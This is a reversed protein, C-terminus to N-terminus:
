ASADLHQSVFPIGEDPGTEQKRSAPSAQFSRAALADQAAKRVSEDLKQNLSIRALAEAAPAQPMAAVVKVVRVMAWIGPPAPANFYEELISLVEPDPQFMLEGLADELLTPSLLPLVKAIATKRKPLRSEKIAQFAAKQVREDKNAFVPTLQDLLEPDKLDGLLKCANRVIYWEPHHLRQRAALLGGPGVRGLLRILALRNAALPEIDLRLFMRELTNSDTWRLLGTVARIWASDNKRELFIEVIRDAASPQLLLRLAGRCCLAHAQADRAASAELADGVKRVLAFDEYTAAIRALAVLANVVQVHILQNLRRSTLAHSLRDEAMIWFEGQVGSLSRLLEPIRGVEENRVTLHDEFISFYQSGLAGAQDVNGLRILEKILDLARRFESASFHDVSLMERLKGQPTLTLWRVEQQLREFTHKPLAFERAYEALKQALRSAAHTAQLSRMLVRFIQEEVIVADEGDPTAALRRLAWRLATDEFVQATVEEKPAGDGTGGTAGTLNALVADPRVSSLVRALEMYAKQPDEDPNSLSAEFKQEAIRQIETLYGGGTKRGGGSSAFLGVGSGGGAGSGGSGTSGGPLGEGSGSGVGTRGGGDGSGTGGGGGIGFGGGGFGEGGDGTELHGLLAEIGQTSGQNINTLAKSILYEESGM